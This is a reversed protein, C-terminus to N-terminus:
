LSFRERLAAAYNAGTWDLRTEHMDLMWTAAEIVLHSPDELAALLAPLVRQDKRKGLSAMAEGRVDEFPDGLREIFADRIEESDANGQSGLGFTAWDRIDEDTDEMLKLLSTVSRPDHSFYGLACAVAYRVDTNVHSAFEIIIPVALPNNLYGLASLASALPEPQTERQVLDAVVAYAEEPFHRSPHEATEGLLALVSAGRARALPNDSRCWTAGKELVKRTGIRGLAYVAKWPEEDDYGGILTRAFLEDIENTTM